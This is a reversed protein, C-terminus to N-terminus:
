VIGRRRAVSQERMREALAFLLWLVYNGAPYAAPFFQAHAYFAVGATLVAARPWDGYPLEGRPRVANRFFLVCLLAALVMGPLGLAVGRQLFYNEAAFAVADARTVRYDHELASRVGGWGVGTLPSDKLVAISQGYTVLRAAGTTAQGTLVRGLKATMAPPAVLLLAVLLVPALFVIRRRRELVITTAVAAFMGLLGGISSTFLNCVAGAAGVFLLFWKLGSKLSSALLGLSLGLGVALYNALHLPHRFTAFIRVDKQGLADWSVYHQSWDPLDAGYPLSAQYLGYVIVPVLGIVVAVLAKRADRGTRVLSRAVVLMAVQGVIRYVANVGWFLRSATVLGPLSLIIIFLGIRFAPSEHWTSRLGERRIVVALLAFLLLDTPFLSATGVLDISLPERLPISALVLLWIGEVVGFKWILVAAAAAGAVSLAVGLPAFAVGLTLAVLVLVVPPWPNSLWARVNM